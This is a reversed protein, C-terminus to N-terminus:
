TLSSLVTRAAEHVHHACLAAARDADGAAIADLVARLEAVSASQRGAQSLSTARLVRVQSQISELLQRLVESRAGDVLIRYFADKAELVDVVSARGDSINAFRAFAASLEHVDADSCREIFRRVVLSELDARIAYLDRVESKSLERVVAGKQPITTILGEVELERLAERVTPRSVGLGEVLEREVLRQGPRLRAEFIARRVADTVHGRLPARVPATTRGWVDRIDGM